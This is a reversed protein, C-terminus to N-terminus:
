ESGPEEEQEALKAQWQAAKEPILLIIPAFRRVLVRDPHDGEHEDQVQM